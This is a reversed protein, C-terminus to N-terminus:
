GVRTLKVVGRCINRVLYAKRSVEPVEESHASVAVRVEEM